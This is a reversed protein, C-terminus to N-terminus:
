FSKLVEKLFEDFEMSFFNFKFCEPPLIEEECSTKM